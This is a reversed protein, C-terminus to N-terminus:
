GFFEKRLKPKSAWYFDKILTFCKLNQEYEKCEKVQYKKGDKPLRVLMGAKVDPVCSRYAAIQYRDKVYLNKSTKFDVLTLVGNIEAILDCTGAFDAGWLTKETQIIIPKYDLFWKMFAVMSNDQEKNEPIFYKKYVFFNNIAQHVMSGDHKAQESIRTWETCLTELIEETLIQGIFDSMGKKKVEYVPWNLPPGDILGLITTVSPYNKGNKEYTNM